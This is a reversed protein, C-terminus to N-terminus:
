RRDLAEILLRAASRPDDAKAVAASVAIRKVGAKALADVNDLNIGGIAFAPLSTEAIAQKVFELGALSEFTKTASAFTPGVGIYGAGDLLAQRVQELSHTSVGILADPGVIRRADLIPMDDQGLHVGDAEALRAIDPRDNVIFIAGAQRTWRRVDRARALLQRDDLGKERLQFIGAGGAAAEAITWELAAECQAATLLVYLRAAALQQRADGGLLITRELTYARYRIQEFGEALAPGFLKAFEELSRLAEQLRKLNVRAVDRASERSMEGAATIPTGVDGSTDRAGLLLGAPLRDLWDALEHRAQKIQSTLFADDLAFRCYDDLIRLSERARNANADLIRGASMQDPEDTFRISESMPLTPPAEGVIESELGSRDLGLEILLQELAPEGRLLALLFYESTATGEGDHDRSLARAKALVRDISVSGAPEAGSLRKQAAAREVGFGALLASARGDEEDLLGLLLQSATVERDGALAMAAEIARYVAPSCSERM